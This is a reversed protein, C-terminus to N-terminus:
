IVYIADEKNDYRKNKSPISTIKVHKYVDQTLFQTIGYQQKKKQKIKGIKRMKKSIAEVTEKEIWGLGLWRFDVRDRTEKEYCVMHNELIVRLMEDKLKQKYKFETKNLTYDHTMEDLEDTTKSLVRKIFDFDFESMYGVGFFPVSEEAKERLIECGYLEALAIARAIKKNYKPRTFYHMFNRHIMIKNPIVDLLKDKVKEFDDKSIVIPMISYIVVDGEEQEYKTTIDNERLVKMFRPYCVHDVENLLANYNRLFEMQIEEKKNM